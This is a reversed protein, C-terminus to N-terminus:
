PAKTFKEYSTLSSGQYSKGVALEGLRNGNQYIMLKVHQSGWVGAGRPVFGSLSTGARVEQEGAEGVVNAEELAAVIQPRAASLLEAVMDCTKAVFSGEAIANLLQNAVTVEDDRLSSVVPADRPASSLCVLLIFLMFFFPKL